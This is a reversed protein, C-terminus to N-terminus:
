LIIMISLTSKVMKLKSLDVIIEKRESPALNIEKLQQPKDLIGM